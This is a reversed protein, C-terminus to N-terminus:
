RQQYTGKIVTFSGSPGSSFFPSTVGSDYDIVAGGELIVKKATIQNLRAAGSLSIIGNGAYLISSSTGGAASIANQTLHSYNSLVLMNSNESGTGGVTGAGNVTIIGDAMLVGSQDGYSDDLRVRSGSEISINGTVYIPSMFEINCSSTVTLNGNIKRSPFTGWVQQCNWGLTQNGNLVGNAEAQAKWEAINSDSIPMVIPQPDVSGPHCYQNTGTTCSSGRVRVNSDTYQYYADKGISLGAVSPALLSNAYVSGQVISGGSGQINTAVGGMYTRFDLDGAIATWSPTGNADWAPSWAPSGRTYSPLSDRQWSWYHNVNNSSDVVIWYTTNAQLVPNSSFAIEVWGYESSVLSAILVGNTKQDSKNPRNTVSNGLIRVTANAPSGIKKLRLAVKNITGTQAPMFSQAVDLRNEGSINKGFQYDLCNVGGCVTEQDASPQTGGAIRVDGTIVPGGDMLINGNSYVSGNIRSGGRLEFGGEGSQIGYNFSLGEGKAVTIAVKRTSKPNTKNPIYGTAEVLRTNQDIDTIAVSFSGQGLVTESEGNYSGGTENLAAVAKDIGAEALATAELNDLSYRASQKYTLSNTLLVVTIVLISTLAILALAFIAGTQNLDISPKM